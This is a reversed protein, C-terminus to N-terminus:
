GRPPAPRRRTVMGLGLLGLGFLALAAPEPVAAVERMGEAAAGPGRFAISWSPREQSRGDNTFTLRGTILVDGFLKAEGPAYFVQVFDGGPKLADQAVGNITLDQMISRADSKGENGSISIAAFGLGALSDGAKGFADRLITESQGFRGDRDFDVALTLTGTAATWSVEFAHAFGVRWAPAGPADLTTDTNGPFNDLIGAEWGRHGWRMRAEFETALGPDGTVLVSAAAPAAGAFPAAVLLAALLAIPRVM